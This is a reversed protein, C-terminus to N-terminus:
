KFLVSYVAVLGIAVSAGTFGVAPMKRVAASVSGLSTSGHFWRDKESHGNSTALVEPAVTATNSLRTGATTAYTQTAQGLNAADSDSMFVLAFGPAHVPIRCVNAAQECQITTVNLEGKLRGDVEFKNGFTQGAWTINYKSSVSEAELYKVKVSSPVGAGPVSIAVVLDSAGTPDDVYNFLAVKSLIDEEYIAYSPTYINGGNGWLDIIRGTGSKGFIEAMILASYYVSGVTWQNFNTQNTPPAIRAFSNYFVNQGGVHLLANSFNSYAMQMGYDLGWLAAGYSDSIGPFGGCSATNTEFMIFPKNIEQAIRATNLYLRCLEIGANHTLYTPFNAQPDQPSGVGFQAFCNNNPYHEMTVAYLRDQFAPLFGTDWVDEPVWDGTALSPAILINKRPIRDNRDIVEILDAIEGFYDYPGYSEPRSKHRAYLDPENGAQMGLLNDGLIEQGYEAIALRWNSSDNFPLGIFWKVNVLSSINSAIYFMDVTYLVAPTETTKLIAANQKAISRGDELEDVMVAFEQTNGGLRIMVEGAREVINSMLNLFPVQILSNILGKKEERALLIWERIRGLSM